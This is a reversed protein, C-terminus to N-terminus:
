GGGWTRPGIGRRSSPWGRSVLSRASTRQRRKELRGLVAAAAAFAFLGGLVAVPARSVLASRVKSQRSRNFHVPLREPFWTDM